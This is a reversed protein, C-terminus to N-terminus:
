TQGYLLTHYPACFPKWASDKNQLWGAMIVEMIAMTQVEGTGYPHRSLDFFPGLDHKAMYYPTIHRVFRHGPPTTIRYGARWLSGQKSGSIAMTQVEGTGYPHM